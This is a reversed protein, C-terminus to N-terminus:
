AIMTNMQMFSLVKDLDTSSCRIRFLAKCDRPTNMLLHRLMDNDKLNYVVDDFLLFVPEECRDIMAYFRNMDKIGYITVNMTNKM